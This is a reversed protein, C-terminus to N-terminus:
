KAKKKKKKVHTHTHTRTHTSIRHHLNQFSYFEQMRVIENVPVQLTAVDHHANSAADLETRMERETEEVEEKVEGEM